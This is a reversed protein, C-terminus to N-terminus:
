GKGVGMHYDWAVVVAVQATQIAVIHLQRRDLLSHRLVDM